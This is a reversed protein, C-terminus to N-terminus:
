ESELTVTLSHKLDADKTLVAKLPVSILQNSNTHLCCVFTFEFPYTRVSQLNRRLHSLLQELMDWLRRSLCISDTENDPSMYEKWLSPSIYTPINIGTEKAYYSVDHLNNDNCITTAMNLSTM